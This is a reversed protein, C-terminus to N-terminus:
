IRTRSVDLSSATRFNTLQARQKEDIVGDERDGARTAARPVMEENINTVSKRGFKQRLKRSFATSNSAKRIVPPSFDDLPPGQYSHDDGSSPYEASTSTNVTTASPTSDASTTQEQAVNRRQEDRRTASYTNILASGGDSRMMDQNSSSREQFTVSRQNRPRRQTREYGDSHNVDMEGSSAHRRLLGRLRMVANGAGPPLNERARERAEKVGEEGDKTPDMRAPGYLVDHYSPPEAPWLVLKRNHWDIVKRKGKHIIVNQAYRSNHVLM